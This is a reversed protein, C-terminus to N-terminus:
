NVESYTSFLINLKEREHDVYPISIENNVKMSEMENSYHKPNVRLSFNEPFEYRPLSQETKGGYMLQMGLFNGDLTITFTATMSRKDLGGAIRAQKKTEKAM